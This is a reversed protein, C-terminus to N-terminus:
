TNSSLPNGDALHGWLRKSGLLPTEFASDAAEEEANQKKLEAKVLRDDRPNKRLSSTSTFVRSCSKQNECFIQHFDEGTLVAKEM